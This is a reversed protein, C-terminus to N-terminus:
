VLLTHIISGIRLHIILVTEIFLYMGCHCHLGVSILALATPVQFFVHILYCGKTIGKWYCYKIVSMWVSDTHKAMMPEFLPKDGTRRWAMIQVLPPQNDIPWILVFKLSIKISIWVKEKSFIFKFIDAAFHHGNQRLRLTNFMTSTFHM